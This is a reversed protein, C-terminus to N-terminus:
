NVNFNIFQKKLPDAEWPDCQEKLLRWHEYTEDHVFHLLGLMLHNSYSVNQESTLSNQVGCKINHKQLTV